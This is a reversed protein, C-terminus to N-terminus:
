SSPSSRTRGLLWMSNHIVLTRSSARCMRHGDDILKAINRIDDFNSAIVSMTCCSRPICKTHQSVFRRTDYLNLWLGVGTAGKDKLWVRQSPDHCTAYPLRSAVEFIFGCSSAPRNKHVITFLSPMLHTNTGGEGERKKKREWQIHLQTEGM